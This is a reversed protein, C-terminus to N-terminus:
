VRSSEHSSGPSPVLTSLAVLSDLYYLVLVYMQLNESKEKASQLIIVRVNRSMGNSELRLRADNGKRQLTSWYKRIRVSAQEYRSHGKAKSLRQVKSSDVM